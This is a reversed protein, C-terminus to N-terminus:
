VESSKLVQLKRLYYNMYSTKGSQHLNKPSDSHSYNTSSKSITAVDTDIIVTSNTKFFKFQQKFDELISAVESINSYNLFDTISGNLLPSSVSDIVIEFGFM